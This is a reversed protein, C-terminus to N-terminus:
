RWRLSKVWEDLSHKVSKARTMNSGFMGARLPWWDNGSRIMEDAIASAVDGGPRWVRWCFRGPPAWVRVGGETGRLDLYALSRVYEFRDFVEEFDADDPCVSRLPGRVSCFMQDSLPALRGRHGDTRELVGAMENWPLAFLMLHKETHERLRPQTFLRGILHHQATALAAIGISYFLLITPYQRVESQIPMGDDPMQAVREIARLWMDDHHEEGHCAGRIMMAQLREVVHELDKMVQLVPPFPRGLLKGYQKISRLTAEAESRVLDDLQIRYRSDVLFRSVLSVAADISAPNPRHSSSLSEVMQALTGFFHDADQIQIVRASRQGVLKTAHDGLQGRTTWFTTFRRVPCRELAARLGPDWQGSWGCVILGFEDLVRDLLHGTREDYEALEQETNRIRHDLYDGHLKLILCRQHPLPLAGGIGDPTSIVVPSVGEDAIAQELLRDFNTTLILKIHGSAVLSAISRHARTPQKTGAEREEETPEFFSRLLQQREIPTAALKALLDSYEPNHGFERSYWAVPDPECERELLTALRRILDVVIEWGTPIQAARSVGSGLLLAYVGPNTQVSLALTLLADISGPQTM